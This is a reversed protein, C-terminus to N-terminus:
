RPSPLVETAGGPGIVTSTGNGNNMVFSQGGSDPMTMTAFGGTGGTVFGPGRPTELFQGAGAPHQEGLGGLHAGFAGGQMTQAAAPAALTISVAALRILKSFQSIM